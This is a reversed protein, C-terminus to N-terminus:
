ENELMAVNVIHHHRRGTAAMQSRSFAFRVSAKKEAVIKAPRVRVLTM